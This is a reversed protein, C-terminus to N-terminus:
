SKDESEDKSEDKTNKNSDASAPTSKSKAITDPDQDLEMDDYKKGFDIKDEKKLSKVYPDDKMPNWHEDPVVNFGPAVRVTVRHGNKKNVCKLNFQRATKNMIGAM